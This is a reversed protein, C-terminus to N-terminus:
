GAEERDGLLAAREEPTIELTTTEDAATVVMVTDVVACPESGTSESGILTRMTFSTRGVRVVQVDVWVEPVGMAITRRFDIQRYRQKHGGGRHRSTKRGHNNRGGTKSEGSVLSKEPTSRTIEAFDAVSSGRRGPTTPKYKRIAM